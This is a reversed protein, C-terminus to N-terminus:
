VGLRAVLSKLALPKLPKHLLHCQARAAARRVAESHDATILVCPREGVVDILQAHLELGTAGGDLHYDLLFLDPNRQRALALAEQPTRAPIVECGWGQLLSEMARLVAVDNDVVLLRSRPAPTPVPHHSATTGTEPATAPVMVAFVSGQGLHSRLSLPHGLLHAIREAISLGLGLGSGGRELRRFEEFIIGQSEEAIGPGTDWV